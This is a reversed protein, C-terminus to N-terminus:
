TPTSELAGPAAKMAWMPDARADAKRRVREKARGGAFSDKAVIHEAVGVELDGHAPRVSVHACGVLQTHM